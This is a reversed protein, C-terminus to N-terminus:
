LKGETILIIAYTEGAPEEWLGKIVSHDEASFLVDFSIPFYGNSELMYQRQRKEIGGVNTVRECFAAGRYTGDPQKTVSFEYYFTGYSPYTEQFSGIIKDDEKRVNAITKTDEPFWVSAEM